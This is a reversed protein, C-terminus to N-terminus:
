RSRRGATNRLPRAYPLWARTSLVECYSGSVALLSCRGFTMAPRNRSTTSVGRIVSVFHYRNASGFSAGTISTANRSPSSWGNRSWCSPKVTSPERQFARM